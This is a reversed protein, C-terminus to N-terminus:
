YDGEAPRAVSTSSKIYSLKPFSGKLYANGQSQIKGQNPGNGQPAGEGYGKYLRDAVDMGVVVRGIPSFGSKDLFTNDGFNIFLQPGLGVSM